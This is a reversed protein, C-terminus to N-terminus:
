ERGVSSVKEVLGRVLCEMEMVIDEELCGGLSLVGFWVGVVGGLLSELVGSVVGGRLGKLKWFLLEGLESGSGWAEM